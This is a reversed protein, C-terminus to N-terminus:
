TESLFVVAMWIVDVTIVLRFNYVIHLQEMDKVRAYGESGKLLLTFLLELHRSMHKSWLVSFQKRWFKRPSQFPHQHCRKRCAWLRKCQELTKIALKLYGQNRNWEQHLSLSCIRLCLLLHIRCHLTNSDEELHNEMWHNIPLHTMVKTSQHNGLGQLWNCFSYM